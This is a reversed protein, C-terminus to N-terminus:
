KSIIFMKNKNAFEICKKKDLFINRNNKVVVGKIRSSNCQKFTELGITPLDIRLDQKEKPFKVLVGSRFKNKTKCKLLMKRTGNKDEIAIVKQDRVVAGQSYNHQNIRKLILITKNIDQIDSKNPKVKSYIGKKLTLDKAFSISSITKIKEKQFIKIIEKLIAADGKKFSRIIKTLYIMGKFDLKLNKLSPKDIKGAFLIKKCKNLRLISIVKGFEGLKCPYSRKEKKFKQNKTLDIILYNLKKKKIRKLIEIPLDTSGFILGIM